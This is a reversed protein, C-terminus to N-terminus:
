SEFENLLEFIKDVLKKSMLGAIAKSIKDEAVYTAVIKVADNPYIFKRKQWEIMEDFLESMKDVLEESMWGNSARGGENEVICTVTYKMYDM